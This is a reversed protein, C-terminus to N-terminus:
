LLSETLIMISSVSESDRLISETGQTGGTRDLSLQILQERKRQKTECAGAPRSQLMAALEAGAETQGPFLRPKINEPSKIPGDGQTVVFVRTCVCANVSGCGHARFVSSAM